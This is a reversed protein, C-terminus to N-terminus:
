YNIPWLFGDVYTRAESSTSGKDPYVNLYDCLPDGSGTKGFAGALLMVAKEASGKLFTLYSPCYLKVAEAILGMEGSKPLCWTNDNFIKRFNKIITIPSGCESINDIIYNNAQLATVNNLQAKRESSSNFHNVISDFYFRLKGMGPTYKDATVYGIAGNVVDAGDVAWETLRFEKGTKDIISKPMGNPYCDASFYYPRVELTENPNCSLNYDYIWRGGKYGSKAPVEPFSGVNLNIQGGEYISQVVIGDLSRFVILAGQHSGTAKVTMNRSITINTSPLDWEYITGDNTELPLRDKLTEGERYTIEQILSNNTNVFRVIYKESSNIPQQPEEKCATLAMLFFAICLISWTHKM